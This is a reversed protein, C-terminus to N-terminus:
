MEPNRELRRLIEDVCLTFDGGLGEHRTEYWRYGDSLDLEAQPRLLVDFNM